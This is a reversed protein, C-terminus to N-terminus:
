GAEITKQDPNATLDPIVPRLPAFHRGGLGSKGATLGSLALLGSMIVLDFREGFLFAVPPYIEFQGV